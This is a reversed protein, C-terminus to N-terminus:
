YPNTPLTEQDVAARVGDAETGAPAEVQSPASPAPAIPQAMRPAAPARAQVAHAPPLETSSEAAPLRLQPADAGNRLPVSDDERATSEGGQAAPALSPAELGEVDIGPVVAPADARVPAAEVVRAEPTQLHPAIGQAALEPASGLAGESVSPVPGLEQVLTTARDGLMAGFESAAARDEAPLMARVLLGSGVVTVASIGVLRVVRGLAGRRVRRRGSYDLNDYDTADVSM